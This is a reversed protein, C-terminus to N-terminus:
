DRILKIVRTIARIAKYSISIFYIRRFLRASIAFVVQRHDNFFACEILAKLRYLIVKPAFRNAEAAIAGIM